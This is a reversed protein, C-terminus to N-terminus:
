PVPRLRWVDIDPGVRRERWGPRALIREAERALRAQFAEYSAVAVPFFRENEPVRTFAADFYSNLVVYEVGAQRLADVLDPAYIPNREPSAGAGPPLRYIRAGVGRLWQFRFPLRFFDDTYFPGVFVISGPPVHARMWERALANTSPRQLAAVYELSRHVPLAILAAGVALWVLPRRRVAPPLAREAAAGALAALLPVAPLVFRIAKLRGTGSISALFAVATAAYLGGAFGLRGSAALVLGGAAFLLAPLGLDATLSTGLWPQHWTPTRSLLYDLPGLQVCGIEGVRQVAAVVGLERQYAPWSGLLFPTTALLALAASGASVTAIRVLRGASRERWATAVAAVAIAPAAFTGTWKAGAALGCAAGAAAWRGLPGPRRAAVAVAITMFLVCLTDPAPTRSQTVM